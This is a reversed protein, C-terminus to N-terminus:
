AVAPPHSSFGERGYTSRDASATERQQCRDRGAAVLFRGPEGEDPGREHIAASTRRALVGDDHNAAAADLADAHSGPELQRVPRRRHVYTSFPDNRPQDVGVRVYGGPRQGAIEGPADGGNAVHVARLVGDERKAAARLTALAQKADGDALLALGKVVEAQIAIQEVWYPLKTAGRLNDLREVQARALAADGSM